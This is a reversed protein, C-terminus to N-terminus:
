TSRTEHNELIERITKLYKDIVIREDFEKIMKNRGAEGMLKRDIESLNILAEMKKRLDEVNKPRCLYGNIGDDVVEKCGSTITIIPKAMSATCLVRSM